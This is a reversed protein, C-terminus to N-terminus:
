LHQPALRLDPAKSPRKSQSIQVGHDELETINLRLCSVDRVESEQGEYRDVLCKLAEVSQSLKLNKQELILVENSLKGNEEM